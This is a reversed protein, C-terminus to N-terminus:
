SCRSTIRMMILHAFWIPQHGVILFCVEELTTCSLNYTIIGLDEYSKELEVFLDEMNIRDGLQNTYPITFTSHNNYEETM